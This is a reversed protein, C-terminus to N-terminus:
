AAIPHGERSAHLGATYWLWPSRAALSNGDRRGCPAMSRLVQLSPPRFTSAITDLPHLLDLVSRPGHTAGNWLMGDSAQAIHQAQVSERDEHMPGAHESIPLAESEHAETLLAGGLSSAREEVINATRLAMNPLNAVRHLPAFQVPFNSVLEDPQHPALAGFSEVAAIAAPPHVAPLDAPRHGVLSLAEVAREQRHLVEGLIPNRGRTLLQSVHPAAGLLSFPSLTPAENQVTREAIEGPPASNETALGEPLTSAEGTSLDHVPAPAPPTHRSLQIPSGPMRLDTRLPLSFAHGLGSLMQGALDQPADLVDGLESTLDPQSAPAETEHAAVTTDRVLTSPLISGIPSRLVGIAQPVLAPLDVASWAERWDEAHHVAEDLTAAHASAPAPLEWESEQFPTLSSEPATEHRISETEATEHVTSVDEAAMAEPELGSHMAEENPLASREPQIPSLESRPHAGWDMPANRVTPTRPRRQRYDFRPTSAPGTHGGTDLFPLSSSLFSNLRGLVDLALSPFLSPSPLRTLTPFATVRLLLAPPQIQGWWTRLWRPWDAALPHTLAMQRRAVLGPENVTM